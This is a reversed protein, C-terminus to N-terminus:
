VQRGACLDHRCAMLLGGECILAFLARTVRLLNTVLASSTGSAADYRYCFLPVQDVSNGIRNQSAEVLGRRVDRLAHELGCFYHAVELGIVGKDLMM